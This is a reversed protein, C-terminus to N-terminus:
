DKWYFDLMRISVHELYLIAWPTEWALINSLAAMEEELPNKGGLSQIQLEQMAPLNKVASSGPFSLYLICM